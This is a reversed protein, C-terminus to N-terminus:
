FLVDRMVFINSVIYVSALTVIAWRDVRESLDDEGRYRLRLSYISLFVSLFICGVALLNVQEALTLDTTSPLQESVVFVNASAAFISGTGLGFRADLDNSRVRFALLGLIVALYSVWFLKFLPTLGNRKLEIPVIFRSYSSTDSDLSRYGYTTPYVHEEARPRGLSVSWGSVSVSPDLAIGRDVVFRQNLNELNSDEIEVTLVHDDFPFAHVDFQHFVTALVRVAAYNYGGDDIVDNMERDHITGNVIEFGEHPTVDSGQWRFWLWADLEFTGDHQSVETLRMVYIGVQVMTLTDVQAEVGELLGGGTEPEPEAEAAAADAGADAPEEDQARVIGPFTLVCAALGCLVLRAVDVAPVSGFGAQRCYLRISFM